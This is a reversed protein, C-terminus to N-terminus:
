YKKGNITFDSYGNEKLWKALCNIEADTMKNKPSTAIEIDQLFFKEKIYPRNKEDHFIAINERKFVHRILRVEREKKYNKIKGDEEGQENKLYYQADQLENLLVCKVRGNRIYRYIMGGIVRKQTQRDYIIKKIYLNEIRGYHCLDVGINFGKESTYNEWLYANDKLFSFCVIYSEYKDGHYIGNEDSWAGINDLYKISSLYQYDKKLKDKNEEIVEKLIEFIVKGETKDNFYDAHIFRFVHSEMIDYFADTYHYGFYNCDNYIFNELM